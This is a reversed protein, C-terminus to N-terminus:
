FSDLALISLASTLCGSLLTQASQTLPFSYAPDLVPINVSARCIENHLLLVTRNKRGQASFYNTHKRNTRGVRAQFLDM